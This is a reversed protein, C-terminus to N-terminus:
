ETDENADSDEDSEEDSAEDSKTDFSEADVTGDGWAVRMLGPYVRNGISPIFRFLEVATEALNEECLPLDAHIGVICRATDVTLKIMRYTANIRNVAELVADTREEPFTAFERVRVAVDHEDDYSIFRMEVRLAEFNVATEVYSCDDRERIVCKYEREQLADYITQTPEFVM